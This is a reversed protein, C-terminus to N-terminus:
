ASQLHFVISCKEGTSTCLIAGCMARQLSSLILFTKKGVDAALVLSSRVLLGLCLSLWLTQSAFPRDPVLGRPLLMM